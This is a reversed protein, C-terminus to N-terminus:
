MMFFILDNSTFHFSMVIVSSTSKHNIKNTLFCKVTNIFGIFSFNLKDFEYLFKLLFGKEFHFNPHAKDDFLQQTKIKLVDIKKNKKGEKKDIYKTKTLKKQSVHNNTTKGQTVTSTQNQSQYKETCV